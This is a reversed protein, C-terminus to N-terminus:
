TRLHGPGHRKSIRVPGGDPPHFHLTQKDIITYTWGGEHQLHHHFTCFLEYNAIDSNGNHANWGARHHADCDAPPRDCGPFLCGGDRLNLQKRQGPSVLRRSRGFDVIESAGGLVAPILNAECAMRRAAAATITGGGQISATGLGSILQALPITVVVTHRGSAEGNCSEAHATAM